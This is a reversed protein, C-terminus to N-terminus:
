VISMYDREEMRFTNRRGGLSQDNDRDNEKMAGM